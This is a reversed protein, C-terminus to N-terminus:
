IIVVPACTSVGAGVIRFGTDEIYASITGDRELKYVTTSPDPPNVYYFIYFSGGWFAWAWAAELAGEASPLLSLDLSELAEATGKDIHMAQPPDTYPFYAWLEGIANGTFEPGTAPLDGVVSVAGSGIDVGALTGTFSNGIFLTEDHTDPGNTAYGMGFKEFGEAGCVFRTPGLCRADDISV